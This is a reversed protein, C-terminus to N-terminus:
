IQVICLNREQESCLKSSLEQVQKQLQEIQSNASKGQLMSNFSFSSTFSSNAFDGFMDEQSLMLNGMGAHDPFTLFHVDNLKKGDTGGVIYLNNDYTIAQHFTRPSPSVGLVEVMRWERREFLYEYLDNFRKGQKDVGGFIFLSKGIVQSSQRYRALPKAGTMAREEYWINTVFSFYCLENLTTLGDWGGFVWMCNQFSDASHGFREGPVMGEAKVEIVEGTISNIRFTNSFKQDGNTGGFVFLYKKWIVMSHDVREQIKKGTLPVQRWILTDTNFEHLDNFYQAKTYGGFFYILQDRSTCKSGSRVSPPTGSQGQVRAWKHEVLDFSYLDNLISQNDAGGFLYGTSGVAVVAHGTRPTFVDGQPKCTRWEYFNDLDLFSENKISHVRSFSKFSHADVMSQQDHKMGSLSEHVKVAIMEWLNSSNSHGGIILIEGLIFLSKHSHRPTMTPGSPLVAQKITMKILDMVYFSGSITKSDSMGGYIILNHDVLESSHRFLTPAAGKLTMRSWKCNQFSFRWMDNLATSVNKGGYIMLDSGFVNASHGFRYGPGTKPDIDL